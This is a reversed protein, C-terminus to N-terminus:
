GVRGHMWKVTIQLGTSLAAGYAKEQVAPVCGDACRIDEGQLLGMLFRSATMFILHASSVYTLLPTIATIFGWASASLLLVKEGGIRFSLCANCSSPVRACSLTLAAHLLAVHMVGLAPSPLGVVCLPLLPIPSIGMQKWCCNCVTPIFSPMGAQVTQSWHNNM